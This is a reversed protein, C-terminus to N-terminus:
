YKEPLTYEKKIYDMINEPISHECNFFRLLECSAEHTLYLCLYPTMFTTYKEHLVRNKIQNIEQESKAHVLLDNDSELWDMKPLEVFHIYDYKKKLRKLYLRQVFNTCRVFEIKKYSNNIDEFTIDLPLKYHSMFWLMMFCKQYQTIAKNYKFSPYNEMPKIYVELKEQLIHEVKFGKDNLFEDINICFKDNVKKVHPEFQKKMIEMSSDSSAALKGILQSIFYVGEIDFFLVDLGLVRKFKNWM